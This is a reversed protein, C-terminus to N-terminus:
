VVLSIFQSFDPVGRFQVAFSGYESGIKAAEGYSLGALVGITFGALFSDGAGTADIEKEPPIAKVFIENGNQIVCAGREGQTLLLCTSKWEVGKFFPIEDESAKLVDILPLLELFPTDVINRHEVRGENGLTRILAQADCILLDVKNRLAIVTEPLIEMSVGCLIGVKTQGPVLRTVDQAYIPECVSKLISSRKGNSNRDVFHTTLHTKSILPKQTVENAYLFDAGVKAIVQHQIKRSEFVKSIYASGGGLGEFVGAENVVTDHCYHGLVLVEM